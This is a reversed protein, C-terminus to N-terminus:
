NERRDMRGRNSPGGRMAGRYDGRGSGRMRIDGRGGGRMRFEGRGRMGMNPRRIGMPHDHGGRMSGRMGRGMYGGRRPGENYFGGEHDRPNIGGPYYGGEYNRGEREREGYFDRQPHRPGDYYSPEHDYYRPEGHQMYPGGRGRRPPGERGPHYYRFDEEQHGRDNFHDQYQLRQPENYDKEYRPPQVNFDDRARMQRPNGPVVPISGRGRGGRFSGRM